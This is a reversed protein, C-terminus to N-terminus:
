DGIFVLADFESRPHAVPVAVPEWFRIDCSSFPKPNQGVRSPPYPSFVISGCRIQEALGFDHGQLARGDYADKQVWQKGSRNHTVYVRETGRYIGTTITFAGAEIIQM